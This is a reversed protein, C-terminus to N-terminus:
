LDLLLHEINMTCELSLLNGLEFVITEGSQGTEHM